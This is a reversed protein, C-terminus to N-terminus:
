SNTNDLTKLVVISMDDHAQGAFEKAADIVADAIEDATRERNAILTEKVRQMGFQVGVGAETIGDSCVCFIDGPALQYNHEGYVADTVGLVPGTPPIETCNDGSCIFAAEHGANVVDIRKSDPYLWAYVMTVLIEVPTEAVLVRNTREIVEHATSSGRYYGGSIFKVAAVLTAAAIGHGSIDALKLTVINDDTYHKVSWYDGGVEWAPIVRGAVQFGPLNPIRRPLLREQISKAMHLEDALRATRQRSITRRLRDAYAERFADSVLSSFHVMRRTSDATDPVHQLVADILADRFLETLERVDAKQQLVAAALDYAIQSIDEDTDVSPEILNDACQVLLQWVSDEIEPTVSYGSTELSSRWSHLAQKQRYVLNQLTDVM